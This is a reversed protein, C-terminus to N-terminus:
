SRAGSRRSPPTPTVDKAFVLEANWARYIYDSRYVYYTKGGNTHTVLTQTKLLDTLTQGEFTLGDVSARIPVFDKEPEVVVFIRQGHNVKATYTGGNETWTPKVRDKDKDTTDETFGAPLTDLVKGGTVKVTIPQGQEFAANLIFPETINPTEYVKGNSANGNLDTLKTDANPLNEGKSQTGNQVEAWYASFYSKDAAQASRTMTVKLPTGHKVIIYHSDDGVEDHDRHILGTTTDDTNTVTVTGGTLFVRFVHSKTFTAELKNTGGDATKNNATYEVTYAKPVWDFTAGPATPVAPADDQAAADAGQTTQTPKSLDYTVTGDAVLATLLSFTSGKEKTFSEYYPNSFDKPDPAFTVSLPEGLPVSGEVVGQEGAKATLKYEKGLAHVTVTGAASGNVTNDAKLTVTLTTMEHTMLGDGGVPGMYCLLEGTIAVTDKIKVTLQSANDRTVEFQEATLMKTHAGDADAMSVYVSNQVGDPFQYKGEPVITVTHGTQKYYPLKAGDALQATAAGTTADAEPLTGATTRNRWDLAVRYGGIYFTKESASSTFKCYEANDKTVTLAVDADKLTVSAKSDFARSNNDVAKVDYDKSITLTYGDVTVTRAGNATDTHSVSIEGQKQNEGTCLTIAGDAAVNIYTGDATAKVTNGNEQQISVGNKLLANEAPTLDAAKLLKVTQGNQAAALALAASGYKGQLAAGSYVEAEPEAYHATFTMTGYLDKYILKKIDENSYVKDTDISADAQGSVTLKWGVFAKNNKAEEDSPACQPIKELVLPSSALNLVKTTGLVEGDYFQFSTKPDKGDEQVFTGNDGSKFVVTDAVKGVEAYTGISFTFRITPDAKQDLDLWSMSMASDVGSISCNNDQNDAWLYGAYHYKQPLNDGTTLIGIATKEPLNRQDFRIAFASTSAVATNIDQVGVLQIKAERRDIIKTLAAYDATEAVEQGDGISFPRELVQSFRGMWQFLNMGDEYAYAAIAALWLILPSLAAWM